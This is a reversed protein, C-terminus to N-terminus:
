DSFEKNKINRAKLTRVGLQEDKLETYYLSSVNGMREFIQLPM